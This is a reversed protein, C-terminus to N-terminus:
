KDKIMKIEISIINPYIRFFPFRFGYGNVTYSNNIKLQNWTEANDFKLLWLCRSVRFLNDNQDVVMYNSSGNSHTIYKEKILIDKKFITSYTFVATGFISLGIIAIQAGVITNDM